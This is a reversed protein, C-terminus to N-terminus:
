ISLANMSHNKVCVMGEVLDSLSYTAHGVLDGDIGGNDGLIDTVHTSTTDPSPFIVSSSFQALQTAGQDYLVYEKTRHRRHVRKQEEVAANPDDVLQIQDIHASSPPPSVGM